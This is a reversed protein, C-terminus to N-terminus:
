VKNRKTENKIHHCKSKNYTLKSSIVNSIYTRKINKRIIINVTLELNQHVIFFSILFSLFLSAFLLLFVARVVTYPSLHIFSQRIVDVAFAHKCFLM